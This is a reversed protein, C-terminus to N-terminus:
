QDRNQNRLSELQNQRDDVGTWEPVTERLKRLVIEAEDLLQKSLDPQNIKRALLASDCLVHFLLESHEPHPLEAEFQRCQVVAESIWSAAKDFEERADEVFCLAQASKILHKRHLPKADPHSCTRQAWKRSELANQEILDLNFLGPNLQYDAALAGYTASMADMYDVNNPELDIIQRIVELCEERLQKRLLSTGCISSRNFRASFQSFKYDVNEPFDKALSDFLEQCRLYAQEAEAFDRVHSAAVATFHHADGTRQRAIPNDPIRQLIAELQGTAEKLTEYRRPLDGPKKPSQVAPLIINKRIENVQAILAAEAQSDLPPLKSESTNADTASPSNGTAPFKDGNDSQLWQLAAIALLLLSGGIVFMMKRRPLTESIQRQNPGALQKGDVFRQLDDSLERASAYRNEPDKQLCRDCISALTQPVDPNREAVPVASQQVTAILVELWGSHGHPTEGTLTKYLIAGISYIDVLTTATNRSAVIEPASYGITGPSWSGRTITADLQDLRVALGLDTVFLQGTTTILVNDPKLDCHIVGQHPAYEIASCLQIILEAIQNWHRDTSESALSAVWQDIPMGDIFPMVIYPVRDETIGANLIAAINPHSLDALTQCEQQFQSTLKITGTRLPLLKIAVMEEYPKSRKAKFVVGYSGYGALSELRYDNITRGTWDGAWEAVLDRDLLESLSDNLFSDPPTIDTNM